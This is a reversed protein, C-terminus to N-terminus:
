HIWRLVFRFVMSFAETKEVLTVPFNFPAEREAADKYVNYAEEATLGILDFVSWLEMGKAAEQPIEVVCLLSSTVCSHMACWM